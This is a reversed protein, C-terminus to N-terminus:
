VLLAVQELLTKALAGRDTIYKRARYVASLGTVHEAPNVSLLHELESLFSITGSLDRKDDDDKELLPKLMEIRKEPMAKLFLKADVPSDSAAHGLELPQMRSRLTPLLTEPSPVILFFKADSPPDEFTKLLANQADTPITPAAIIFVRGEEGVAHLSARERLSRADEMTFHNYTRVLVDPDGVSIKRGLLALVASASDATGRVVYAHAALEM